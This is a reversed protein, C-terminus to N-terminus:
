KEPNIGISRFFAIWTFNLRTQNKPPDDEATIYVALGEARVARVFAAFEPISSLDKADFHIAPPSEAEKGPAPMTSGYNKEASM